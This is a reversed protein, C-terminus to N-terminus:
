TTRKKRKTRKIKKGKRERKEVVQERGNVTGMCSLVWATVEYIDTSVKYM